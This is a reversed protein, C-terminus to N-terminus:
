DAHDESRSPKPAPHTTSAWGDNQHELKVGWLDIRTLSKPYFIAIILALLVAGTASILAIKLWLPAPFRAQDSM